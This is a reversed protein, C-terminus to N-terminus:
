VSFADRIVAGSWSGGSAPEMEVVDFRCPCTEAVRRQQIYIRAMRELQRQKAPGVSEAGTGFEATSRTRVEVFVLEGAETAVVDLEGWRTRYNRDVIRYGARRLLRCAAEEGRAGLQKRQDTGPGSV